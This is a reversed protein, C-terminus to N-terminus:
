RASTVSGGAPVYASATSSPNTGASHSCVCVNPETEIAAAPGAAPPSGGAACAAGTTVCAAGTAAVTSAAAAVTAAGGGASGATAAELESSPLM